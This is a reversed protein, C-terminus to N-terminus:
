YNTNKSVSSAFNYEGIAYVFPILCVYLLTRKSEQIRFNALNFFAALTDARISVGHRPSKSTSAAYTNPSVESYTSSLPPCQFLETLCKKVIINQVYDSLLKAIHM